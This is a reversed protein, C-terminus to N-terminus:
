GGSGLARALRRRTGSDATALEEALADLAEPTGLQVLAELAAHRVDRDPDDTLSRLPAFSAPNRTTGLAHAVRERLNDNRADVLAATLGEVAADSGIEGLARLATYRVARSPDSASLSALAAAAASAELSGLARAADERVDRHDDRLALMLAPLARTPDATALSRAAAGRVRPDPDQLLDLLVRDRAESHTGARAGPGAALATPDGSTDEPGGVSGAASAVMLVLVLAATAVAAGGLPGAPMGARHPELLSRIRGELESPRAMSLAMDQHMAPRASLATELLHRAYSSPLAGSAVVVDDCAREAELRARRAAMWVLPNFWHVTCAAAAVLQTSLDHRAVHAFEHRLAAGLREEPWERAEAPLLVVTRAPGLTIPIDVEPSVRLDPLSIGMRRAAATAMASWEVPAPLATMRLRRLRLAAYAFFLGVVAAGAAWALLLVAPWPVGGDAAPRQVAAEPLRGSRDAAAPEAKGDSTTVPVPAAPAATSARTISWHTPLVEWRLQPMASLLPMVLVGALGVTLALHKLAASARRLLLMACGTVCLLVVGRLTAELLAALLAPLDPPTTFM